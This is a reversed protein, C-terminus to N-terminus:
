HKKRADLVDVFRCVFCLCERVLHKRINSNTSTRSCDALVAYFTTLDSHLSSIRHVYKSSCTSSRLPDLADNTTLRHQPALNYVM